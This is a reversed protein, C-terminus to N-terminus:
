TESEQEEQTQRLIAAYQQVKRYSDLGTKRLISKTHSYITSVKVSFQVSMEQPGMGAVYGEYIKRETNTLKDLGTVFIRYAEPDIDDKQAHAMRSADTQVTELQSQTEEVQAQLFESQRLAADKESELASVTEQHAEDQARLSGSVAAFESYSMQGNGRNEETLQRLDRLLPSLYRRSVVICALCLAFLLLFLLLATQWISRVVLQRYDQAPILVALTRSESDGDAATFDMTMGVYSLDGCKMATLGHRMSTLALTGNNPVFCYDGAGGAMLCGSGDLTDSVSGESAMLCAVSQFGTPQKHHAAFYTQNVGFGCLGYVTGDEGIMPVTLLVARESTGPLTILATTRCSASSVPVAADALRERYDPVAETNFERSWKRHPMVGHAKGIEAMGRYLLLDGTLHEANSRQVYLGSRDAEGSSVGIAAELIVFAESCDTQRAYQCLPELLAEEVQSIADLNGDLESFTMGQESLADELIETMDKSLHTSMGSVNRWLSAMDSRFVEMQISMSKSLEEGPTNIRGFIQLSVLLVAALLLGMAAMYIVLKHKMSRNALKLKELVHRM